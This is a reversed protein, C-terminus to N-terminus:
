IMRAMVLSDECPNQYYAKNGGLIQFGCKKYLRIATLNSVRVDLISYRCERLRGAEIGSKLLKEAIGQRRHSPKVALNAIVMAIGKLYLVIYGAVGDNDSWAMFELDPSKVASIFQELSWPNSFCEKEIRWIEQIQRIQVPKINSQKKM